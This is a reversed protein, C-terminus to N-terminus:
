DAQTSEFGPISKKKRLIALIEALEKINFEGELRVTSNDDVFSVWVGTRNEWGDIKKQLETSGKVIENTTLKKTQDLM